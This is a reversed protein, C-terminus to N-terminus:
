VTADNININSYIIINKLHIIYFSCEAEGWFTGQKIIHRKKAM